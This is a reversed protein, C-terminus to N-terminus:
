YCSVRVAIYLRDDTQKVCGGVVVNFQKFVLVIEMLTLTSYCQIFWVTLNRDVVVEIVFSSSHFDLKKEM